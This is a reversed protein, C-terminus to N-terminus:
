RRPRPISAMHPAPAVNPGAPVPATTDVAFAATHAQAAANSPLGRCVTQHFPLEADIAVPRPAM